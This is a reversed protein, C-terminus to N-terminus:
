EHHHHEHADGAPTAGNLFEQEQREEEIEDPTKPNLSRMELEQAATLAPLSRVFCVLKWSSLDGDGPEGFAPMGTFQVGNEIVYYLEGDSESPSAAHRLDPVRPYMGRGQMTQGSGNNAHCTACHDAWHARGEAVNAEDCPVPNAMRRYAKPIAVRRFLSALTTEMQSPESRASFGRATIWGLLGAFAAALFAITIVFVRM